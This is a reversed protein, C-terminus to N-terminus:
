NENPFVDPGGHGSFGQVHDVRKKEENWRTVLNTSTGFDIGIYLSM